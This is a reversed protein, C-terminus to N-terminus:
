IATATSDLLLREMTDVGESLTAGLYTGPMAAILEPRSNFAAGGYALVPRGLYNVEPLWQAIEVLQLAPKETMAVLVVAPPAMDRVFRALDSLPVSQGLYAVPWRRRRLLVGLMLLSVEHWEDPACALVVPRVQHVPPGSVSWMMLRQRIFQSALHETAVNIRGEVWGEGISVLSPRIVDLILNEMSIVALAEGLLQDASNLDHAVLASTLRQQFVHMPSGESVAPQIVPAPAIPAMETLRGARERSRLARIAQSTQMGEDINAKVWRLRVLEQEAYLRHGGATRTARPFKYRREWVRLTAVPIGTMRSVVGINYIPEESGTWGNARTEMRVDRVEVPINM